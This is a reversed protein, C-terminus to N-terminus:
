LKNEVIEEFKSFNKQQTEFQNQCKLKVKELTRAHKEDKIKRDKEIDM